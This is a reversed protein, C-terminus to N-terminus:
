GVSRGFELYRVRLGDLWEREDGANTVTAWREVIGDVTWHVFTEDGPHSVLALTAREYPSGVRDRMAIALLHDRWLQNHQVEDVRDHCQPRWPSDSSRMWRRYAESDYHRQSFPETLKTEIGLLALGGQTTRYEVFADFATRDDLYESAPMPAYEIVVRTVQEVQDGLLARIMRTARERNRVLPGFLNFCMPQSSLM